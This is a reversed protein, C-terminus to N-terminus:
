QSVNALMHVEQSPIDFAPQGQGYGEKPARFQISFHVVAPDTIDPPTFSLSYVNSALVKPERTVGTPGKERVRITNDVDWYIQYHSGDTWDFEIQSHSPIPSPNTAPEVCNATPTCPSGPVACTCFVASTAVGKRMTQTIYDVAVRAEMNIQQNKQTRQLYGMLPRGLKSMFIAIIGVIVVAMLLEVM